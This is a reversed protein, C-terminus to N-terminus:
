NSLTISYSSSIFTKKNYASSCVMGSLTYNQNKPVMAYGIKGATIPIKKYYGGGNITLVMNCRSKNHVSVSTKSHDSSGNLLDNLVETTEPKYTKILESYEGETNISSNNTNGTSPYTKKVPYNNYNVSCSYTILILTAFLFLKRM